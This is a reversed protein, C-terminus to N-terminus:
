TRDLDAVWSRIARKIADPTMNERSARELLAPLEEDSAFRLAAIQRNTLQALKRQQEASLLDRGRVKMEIKVIRDQLRVTYVRSIYLLVIEAGIVGVVGLAYTWAGGIQLWRLTFGVIALLVFTHGVITPVPWHVHTHYNHPM